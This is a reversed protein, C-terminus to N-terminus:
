ENTKLTKTLEIYKQQIQINKFPIINPIQIKSITNFMTQSNSILRYLDSSLLVTSYTNNALKLNKKSIKQANIMNIKSNKLDQKYINAIKLTFKQAKLNSLYINKRRSENENKIELKTNNILKTSVNILKNIKPIFINDVKNIYNQQIYVVLKLSILHMGYYKKAQSLEENSEKTLIMIQNTIQKLIDMVLSIQIIDDGDIRTLLVDIQKATLEIGINSFNQKLSNQILKIENQLIKIEDKLDKIKDDYQNKTTTFSSNKPAAVKKNRYTTISLKSLSIQENIEIIQNKYKFLDDAILIEIIENLVEDIDNQVDKKDTGFWVSDPSINKKESLRSGELLKLHIDEWIENFRQKKLEENSIEIKTTYKIYSDKAQTYLTKSAVVVSNGIDKSENLITDTWTANLTISLLILFIIIKLKNM